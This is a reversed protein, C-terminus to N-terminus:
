KRSLTADRGGRWSYIEVRGFWPRTPTKEGVIWSGIARGFLIRTAIAVREAMLDAIFRLAADFVADENRGSWPGFHEHWAYPGFDITIQDGCTRVMLSRADRPSAISVLLSGPLPFGEPDRVALASWEPYAAFLREAFRQSYPNLESFSVM